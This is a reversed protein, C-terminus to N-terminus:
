VSVVTSSAASIARIVLVAIATMRDTERGSPKLRPMFWPTAPPAPM